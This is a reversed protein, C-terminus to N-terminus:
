KYYTSVNSLAIYEYKKRLGITDTRNLLLRHPNSTESKELNMFITNM